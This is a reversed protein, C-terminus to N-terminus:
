RGSEKDNCFGVTEGQTRLSRPLEGWGDRMADAYGEELGDWRGQQYGSKRGIQFCCVGVSAAMVVAIALTILNSM